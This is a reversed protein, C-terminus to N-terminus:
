MFPKAPVLLAPPLVGARSGEGAWAGAGPPSRLAQFLLGCPSPPWAAAGFPSPERLPLLAVPHWPGAGSRLGRRTHCHLLLLLVVSRPRCPRRLVLVGILGGGSRSRLYLEGYRWFCPPCHLPM